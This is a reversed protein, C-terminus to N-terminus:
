KKLQLVKLIKMMKDLGATNKIKKYWFCIEEKSLPISFVVVNNKTNTMLISLKGKAFHKKVGFPEGYIQKNFNNILIYGNANKDIQWLLNECSNGNRKLYEREWNNFGATGFYLSNYSNNIRM